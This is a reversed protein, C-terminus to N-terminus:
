RGFKRRFSDLLDARDVHALAFAAREVATDYEEETLKVKAKVQQAQVHRLAEERYQKYRLMGFWAALVAIVIGVLWKWVKKM